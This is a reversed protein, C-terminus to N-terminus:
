FSSSFLKSFTSLLCFRIQICQFFHVISLSNKQTEPVLGWAGALTWTETEVVEALTEQSGPYSPPKSCVKETQYPGTYTGRAGIAKLHEINDGILM